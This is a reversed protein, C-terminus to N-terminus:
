QDTVNLEVRRNKARGAKTDNDAIPRSEGYGNISTIRNRNVGHQVLYDKVAQARRESLKQNYAASGTSDTHGAISFRVEQSADLASTVNDLRNTAQPTLQASDFEFKVGHLVVPEKKEIPCGNADVEVGPPTGPCQDASDPVGDGDSDTPQVPAPAPAPEAAAEPPAGIPVQVGVSVINSRFNKHTTNERDVNTSRYRYEARLKVGYDNLPFMYGAGVDYFKSRQNNMGTNSHDFDYHGIGVGAVAYVPLIDRAPFFLASAGYGSIDINADNGYQNGIDMDGFYFGYLELAFYDGFNKGISLQGGLQDDRDMGDNNAFNYSAMPAIYFRTEQTDQTNDPSAMAVSSLGMLSAAAVCAFSKNM